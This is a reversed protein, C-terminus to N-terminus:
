WCLGRTPDYRFEVTRGRKDVGSGQWADGCRTLPLIAAPEQLLRHQMRLSQLASSFRALEQPALGAFRRADIRVCAHEWGENPAGHRWPLLEGDREVALYLTLTEDGLRTPLEAEGHWLSSSDWCYGKKIKLANFAAQSERALDKGLQAQTARQLAAPVEAAQPGYVAEVLERVAGPEGQRGPSVICGSRQLAKAGRWLEGVNPYVYCAKPFLSAYWDASPEDEIVPCLVHLVPPARREIGDPAPTGDPLRAHRQLRGARQILLDIPALDTVMADMDIDLSQEVVQTAILVRGRRTQPGSRAGFDRLVRDEIDLRDGMAFRGHFLTLQDPPLSAALLDCARLADEVTNRIWCVCRGAAAETLVAAVAEDERHCFNVQVRRVLRPRTQCAHVAIDEGMRTALPYRLDPAVDIPPLGLGARYDQLLEARYFSPLTASLLIASGGQRAHSALLRKLLTRVYSDYAHVEDVVLVKGALGLLRLSQHRVPLVGLLAQDITGVGVEALLAKKRNDALWASCAASATAEEPTYNRDAPLGDSQLISQRFGEMLHRAGHALVLSPLADDAFLHRYISGVRQYMQNATAMSPLAFYLGCALGKEMLRQVLMLAAETKGAGTVDELLFLQPGAELAVSAAYHQLPTPERLYDFLGTPGSWPRATQAQLGAQRIATQARPLATNRWYTSLDQPEQRYAFVSQNSGLWDALVALGALRWAHQRLMELQERGPKPIDPPAWGAALAQTYAAAAKRDEDLFHDEVYLGSLGDRSAEHPPKGHHGVATKMWAAWFDGEANPLVDALTEPALDDRWLIWGLTDHRYQYPMGADNQVLDASLGPARGQFGRAFKGVDHLALFFVALANVVPLPWGLAQALRTLSFQPLQLLQWGCAAVDLGHFALLHYRDLGAQVPSAKGWYAFYSASVTMSEHTKHFMVLVRLPM